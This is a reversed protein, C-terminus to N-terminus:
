VRTKKYGPWGMGNFSSDNCYDIFNQGTGIFPIGYMYYKEKSCLIDIHIQHRLTSTDFVALIHLLQNM